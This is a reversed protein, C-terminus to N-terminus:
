VAVWFNRLKWFLPKLASVVGAWSILCKTRMPRWAMCESSHGYLQCLDRVDRPSDVVLCLAAIMEKSPASELVMAKALNNLLDLITWDTYSHDLPPREFKWLYKACGVFVDLASKSYDITLFLSLKELRDKSLLGLLAFVKDQPMTCHQAYFISLLSYLSKAHGGELDMTRKYYGTLHFAVSWTYSLSLSIEKWNRELDAYDCVESGSIIIADKSLLVEQIIWLRTWYLQDFFCQSLHKKRKDERVDAWVDAWEREPGRLLEFAIKTSESAEGLWSVVLSANRYISGMLTVQHSKEWDDTQNICLADIYFYQWGAAARQSFTTIGKEKYLFPGQINWYDATPYGTMMCTRLARLAQWLNERVKIRKGDIEIEVQPNAPGWAYSLATYAPAHDLSNVHHLTCSILDNNNRHIEILRISRLAQQLPTYLSSTTM